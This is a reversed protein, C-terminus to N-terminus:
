RYLGKIWGWTPSRVSIPACPNGPLQPGGQWTARNWDQPGHIRQTNGAGDRLLIEGVFLCTPAPCGACNPAGVTRVNSIHINLAYYEYGTNLPVPSVATVVFALSARGGTILYPSATAVSANGQWPDACGVHPFTISTTLADERCTGPNHLRWWDPLASYDTYLEVITELQIVDFPAEPVFSIVLTNMGNNTACAFVRNSPGGGGLCETWALNVGGAFSTAPLFLAALVAALAKM